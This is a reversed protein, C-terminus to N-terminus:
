VVMSLTNFIESLLLISHFNKVIHSFFQVLQFITKLRIQDSHRKSDAIQFTIDICPTKGLLFSVAEGKVQGNFAKFVNEIGIRM